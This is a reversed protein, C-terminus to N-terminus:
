YQREVEPSRALLGRYSEIRAILEERAATAATIEERVTDLRARAQIYAPNNPAAAAQAAAAPQAALQAQLAAVSRQLRLVDPHNESYRQRAAALEAEAASLQAQLVAVRDGADAGGTLAEIERKRAVIDPHDESYRGRLAA